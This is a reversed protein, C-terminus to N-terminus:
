RLRAFVMRWNGQLDKSREVNEWLEEAFLNCVSQTFNRHCEFGLLGGGKLWRDAACKKIITEYFVLPNEDSVFLADQPEQDTVRSDMTSKESSPIYPPNSAVVDFPHEPWNMSNEFVDKLVWEVSLGVTESNTKAQDLANVSSDIGKVSDEPRRSKWALAICGSGTGIDLFRHSFNADLDVRNLLEQVLEETEPRPILARNDATLQLGMFHVKKLIYQLPEGECWRDALVSLRDLQSESAKWRESIRGGRDLGSVVDLLLRCVSNIERFDNSSSSTLRQELWRQVAQSTNSEPWPGQGRPVDGLAPRSDDM